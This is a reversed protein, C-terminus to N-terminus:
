GAYFTFILFSYLRQFFEMKNSYPICIWHVTIGSENTVEWRLDTGNERRSTVLNVTHGLQVLRKAMEYSRTSGPM